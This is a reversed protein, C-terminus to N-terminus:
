GHALIFFGVETGNLIHELSRRPAIALSLWVLIGLLLKPENLLREEGREHHGLLYGM